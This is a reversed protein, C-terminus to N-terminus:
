NQQVFFSFWFQRQTHPKSTKEYLLSKIKDYPHDSSRGRRIRFSWWRERKAIVHGKGAGREKKVEIKLPKGAKDFKIGSREWNRSLV